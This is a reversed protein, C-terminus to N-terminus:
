AGGGSPLKGDRVWALVAAPSYTHGKITSVSITAEQPAMEHYGRCVKGSVETWQTLWWGTAGMAMGDRLSAAPAPPVPEPPQTSPLDDVVRIVTPGGFLCRPNGVRADLMWVRGDSGAFYLHGDDGKAFSSAAVPERPCAADWEAMSRQWANWKGAAEVLAPAANLVAIAWPVSPGNIRLHSSTRGLEAKWNIDRQDDGREADLRGIEDLAKAIDTQM